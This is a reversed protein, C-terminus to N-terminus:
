DDGEALHHGKKTITEDCSGGESTTQGTDLTRELNLWLIENLELTV